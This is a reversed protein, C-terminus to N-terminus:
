GIPVTSTTFCLEVLTKICSSLLERKRRSDSNLPCIRINVAKDKRVTPLLTKNEPFFFFFIFHALYVANSKGQEVPEFSANPCVPQMHESYTRTKCMLWQTCACFFAFFPLLMNLFIYRCQRHFCCKGKKKRFHVATQKPVKIRDFPLFVPKQWQVVLPFKLTRTQSTPVSTSHLLFFPPIFSIQKSLYTM